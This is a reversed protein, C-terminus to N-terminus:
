LIVLLLGKRLSFHVMLRPTIIVDLRLDFTLYILVTAMIMIYKFVQKSLMHFLYIVVIISM